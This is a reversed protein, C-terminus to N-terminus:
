RRMGLDTLANAFRNAREALEGYTYSGHDDIFALKTARGGELNRAILDHAANYEAPFRVDPPSVRPDATSLAPKMGMGGDPMATRTGPGRDGVIHYKAEHM